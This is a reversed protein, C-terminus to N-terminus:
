SHSITKQTSGSVQRNLNISKGYERGEGAANVNGTRKGSRGKRMDKGFKNEIVAVNKDHEITYVNALVLSMGPQAPAAKDKRIM